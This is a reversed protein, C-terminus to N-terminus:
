TQPIKEYCENLYRGGGQEVGNILCGNLQVGSMELRKLSSQFEDMTVAGAKIVMISAGAIQGIIAADSVNLVPPADVIIHDYKEAFANIMNGFRDKSFLEASDYIEGGRPILDLNEVSTPKVIGEFSMQDFVGEKLGPNREINFMTHLDGRYMDADILLVRKGSKSLLTALNASVFSKGMQPLPSCIMLVNNSTNVISHALITRLARLREVTLDQPYSLALVGNERRTGMIQNGREEWKSQRSSYPIDMYVPLGFSKELVRADEIYTKFAARTFLVVLYLTTGILLFLPLVVSKKPWIPKQPAIAHDIIRVSGVSGAEALRLKQASDLLSVYLETNITVKRTLSLLNQEIGPLEEGEKKLLEMAQFITAIQSELAEITPHRSKFKKLLAEREQQLQTLRSEYQTMQDVIAQAEATLDVSGHTKRFEALGKEAEELETRVTPLQSGLFALKNEAEHSEWSLKLGQYTTVLKNLVSSLLVPNEGKM